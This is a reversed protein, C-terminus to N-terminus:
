FHLIRQPEYLCCHPNFASGLRPTELYGKGCNWAETWRLPVPVVLNEGSDEPKSEGGGWGEDM